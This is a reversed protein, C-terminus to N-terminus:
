GQAANLQREFALERETLRFIAADSTKLKEETTKAKEEAAKLKEKVESVQERLTEVQAKFQNNAKVSSELKRQVSLEFEAKRAIAAGRLLSRYMWRAQGPLDSGHFYDETSPLLQSDIFNGADFNREMVTFAGEPSSSPKKKKPNHIVKVDDEAQNDNNEPPAVQKRDATEEDSDDALFTNYLNELGTLEASMGLVYNRAVERDGMLLHPNVHNKGFVALLVDAIKKDVCSM